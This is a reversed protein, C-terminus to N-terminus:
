VDILDPCRNFIPISEVNVNRGDPHKTKLTESVLDGTKSDIDGPMLFGGKDRECACRMASWIKGRYVLATFVKAREKASSHGRKQRMKAEACLITSSTLM